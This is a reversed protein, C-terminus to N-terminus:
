AKGRIQALLNEVSQKEDDTLWYSAQRRGAAKQREAYRAQRKAGVSALLNGTKSDHKDRM